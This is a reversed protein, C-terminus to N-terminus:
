RRQHQCLRLDDFSVVQYVQKTSVKMELDANLVNNGLLSQDGEDADVDEETLM